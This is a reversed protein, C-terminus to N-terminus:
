IPQFVQTCTQMSANDKTVKDSNTMNPLKHTNCIQMSANDKKYKIM